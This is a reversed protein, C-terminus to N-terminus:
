LDLGHSASQKPASRWQEPVPGLMSADLLPGALIADLLTSQTPQLEVTRTLLNLLRLFESTYEGSWEKPAIEDLPSSKKGKRNRMRYGLWSQVVKLGSVEYDWVAKPVPGFEGTGVSIVQRAEDYAFKEPLGGAPVAKICKASPAPWSQGNACREGYSHLFLLERGLAVARAFRTADATLPVHLERSELEKHFRATFVPQALAAYLYAAVDEATISAGFTKQLLPLLQPHLNPQTAAADRYLPFIDKAGFSGRFYHLDPVNASVTLAPGINLPQTFVSAFFFQRPSFSQWLPQRPRSLLRGDAIIFQRDFSRYGYPQPAPCSMDTPLSGIATTDPCAPHFQPYSSAILRDTSEKFAESRDKSELLIKWRTELVDPSSAIPWVRKGQVGSHQWPM